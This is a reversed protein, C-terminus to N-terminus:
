SSDESESSSAGPTKVSGMGDELTGNQELPEPLNTLRYGFDPMHNLMDAARYEFEFVERMPGCVVTVEIIGKEEFHEPAEDHDQSVITVDINQASIRHQSLLSVM